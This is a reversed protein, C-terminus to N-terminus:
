VFSKLPFLSLCLGQSEVKPKIPIFTQYVKLQTENLTANPPSFADNVIQFIGSDNQGATNTSQVEEKSFVPQVPQSLFKEPNLPANPIITLLGTDIQMFFLTNM